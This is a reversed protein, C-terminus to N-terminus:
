KELKTKSIKEQIFGGCVFVNRLVCDDMVQFMCTYILMGVFQWSTVFVHAVGLTLLWCKMSYNCHLWIVYDSAGFLPLDYGGGGSNQFFPNFAQWGGVQNQSSKKKIAWM